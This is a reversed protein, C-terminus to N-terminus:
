LQAPRPGRCRLVLLLVSTVTHLRPQLNKRLTADGPARHARSGGHAQNQSGLWQPLPAQGLDLGEVQGFQVQAKSGALALFPGTRPVRPGLNRM